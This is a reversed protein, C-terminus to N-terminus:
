EYDDHGGEKYCLLDLAFHCSFAIQALDIEEVYLVIVGCTQELFLLELLPNWM